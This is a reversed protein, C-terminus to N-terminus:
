NCGTPFPPPTNLDHVIVSNAMTSTQGAALPASLSMTAHCNPIQPGAQYTLAEYGWQRLWRGELTAVELNMSVATTPVWGKFSGDTMSTARGVEVDSANYFIVVVGRVANGGNRVSGQVAALGLPRVTIPLPTAPPVGNWMAGIRANGPALASFVGNANITGVNQNDLVSWSTAQLVFRTGSGVEYGALEFTTSEGPLINLPDKTPSEVRVLSFPGGGGGGGGSGGGGCGVMVLAFAGVAVLTLFKM